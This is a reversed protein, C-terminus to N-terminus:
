DEPVLAAILVPLLAGAGLVALARWRSLGASHERRSGADSLPGMDPDDPNSQHSAHTRAHSGRSQLVDSVAYLFSGGSFLVALGAVATSTGEAGEGTGAADAPGALVHLMGATVLAACPAALAFALLGACARLAGGTARSPSPLFPSAAQADNISAPM